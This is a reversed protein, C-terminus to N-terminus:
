VAALALRVLDSLSKSGTKKMVAARHNEVTRQSVGLDAAIIKNPQGTIVLNMIQRERPTLRGIRSAADEHWATLAMSNQTLEIARDISALLVDRSAPKEIFDIAGAKMSEVAMSVEGHGTIMISPLLQNENKLRQLLAIGGLGPLRADVLLCGKRGPRYAELFAECSAFAEVPRGEMAIMERMTERLADDDDILFVTPAREDASVAVLKPKLAPEPKQRPASLGARVLRTLDEAKIPKNLQVCGAMSIARLTDTAIDGTVILVPLAGDLTGRLRSAVELGNLGNPLNYDAILIDPRMDGRAVLELASKGDPAAAVRYGEMEFLMQLMERIAPDDEVVLIAQGKVPQAAVLKLKPRPAARREPGACPVVISFVSGKGPRSRVDIEHGLLDALRQVISLGLGLGRARERAPNDLQHFEEFVAKLQGEPIGPGTDWIEIRLDSDQRRCGLLIRGESTYKLANSMLNRIMQEILTPDSLVTQRCSVVRCFLGKSKAHDTFEGRLRDLLEGIAFIEREPKVIGAELQNIDLLKNLMGSMVDLSEGLKAVLKLADPDKVKTTLIGQMLSMTQLPQRLDHSAAALFRSKGLNAREAQKKATGLAAEAQKRGTIDDISLLTKRKAPSTAPIERANLQLVRRGLPPQDIEIEYDEAVDHGASVRDLFSRLAQVDFCRDRLNPLQQGVASAPLIAFGRYFSPSASVIRLEHDLVVLSQRITDIISNAYASATDIELEAAKMESIDSFTIVVGEIDNDLSRYPLLRRNYWAGNEAEVERWLSVHTTMVTQADLLLDDDAFRRTVESLPRNIQAPTVKFLVAAPPTFFRLRLDRDLVLTAIGSSNLINQLYEASRFGSARDRQGNSGEAKKGPSRSEGLLPPPRAATHQRARLSKKM